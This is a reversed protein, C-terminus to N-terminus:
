TAPLDPDVDEGVLRVGLLGGLGPHTGALAVGLTPDGHDLGALHHELQGTHGLLQRAFREAEGPVLEGDLRFEDFALPGLSLSPELPACDSLRRAPPSVSRRWLLPM